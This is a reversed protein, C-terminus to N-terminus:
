SPSGEARGTTAQYRKWIAEREERPIAHWRVGRIAGELASVMSRRPPDDPRIARIREAAAVAGVRRLDDPTCIGAARLLRAAERGINPLDTRDELPRKVNVTFTAGM